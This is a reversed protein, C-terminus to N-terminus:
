GNELERWIHTQISKLEEWTQYTLTGPFFLEKLRELDEMRYALAFVVNVWQDRTLEIKM